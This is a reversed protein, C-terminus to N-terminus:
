PRGFLSYRCLILIHSMRLLLAFLCLHWIRCQQMLAAVFQEHKLVEEFVTVLKGYSAKPAEIAPVLAKNGRDMLYKIMKNAHELEEQYQKYLWNCSGKFGDADVYLAMALYQHASFIEATIQENFAKELKSSMKM